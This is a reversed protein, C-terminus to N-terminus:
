NKVGFGQWRATRADEVRPTMERIADGLLQVELALRKRASLEELLRQKTWLDVGLRAGIYDALMEPAGPM